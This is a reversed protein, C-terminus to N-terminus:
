FSTCNTQNGFTQCRTQQPYAMMPQRRANMLALGNAINADGPGGAGQWQAGPVCASTTLAMILVFSLKM